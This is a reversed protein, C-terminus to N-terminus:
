IATVVQSSVAINGIQMDVLQQEGIDEKKRWNGGRRGIAQLIKDLDPELLMERFIM